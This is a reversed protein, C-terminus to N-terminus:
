EAREKQGDVATDIHSEFGKALDKGFKEVLWEKLRKAPRQVADFRKKFCPQESDLRENLAQVGVNVRLASFWKGSFQGVVLVGGDNGAQPIIPIEVRHDFASEAQLLEAQFDAPTMDETLAPHAEKGFENWDEELIFDKKRDRPRFVVVCKKNRMEFGNMLDTSLKDIRTEAETSKAKYSAKVQDFEAEIGRLAAISRALDGGIQNREEPEFTHKVTKTETKLMVGTEQGDGNGNGNGNGSM